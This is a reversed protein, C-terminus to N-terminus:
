FVVRKVRTVNHDVFKILLSNYYGNLSITDLYIKTQTNM